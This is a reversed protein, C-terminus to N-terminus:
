HITTILFTTVGYGVGAGDKLVSGLIGPVLVVVREPAV